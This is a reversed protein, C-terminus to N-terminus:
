TYDKGFDSKGVKTESFSRKFRDLLDDLLHVDIWGLLYDARILSMGKVRVTWIGRKGLACHVLCERNLWASM